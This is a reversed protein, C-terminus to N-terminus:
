LGARDLLSGIVKQAGFLEVAIDRAARCNGEYDAEIADVAEVVDDATTFAFLGEGTPLYRSFGTEQTIVPRGAALYCVSRDSFWGTRPRVYQDRAVTFEARSRWIFERYRDVSSSVAVADSVMWGHRRLSAIADRGVLRGAVNMCLEFPVPARGPLDMVKAFEVDKSWYYTEGNIVIDQDDNRWTTITRYRDGPRHDGRDWLSLAVPQRTPLWRFGDVPVMCDAAGINEGFSFLVNHAQLELCKLPDGLTARVQTGFPDTQVYIRRPCALHEDRLDLSGTINLYADATRYLELIRAESMGYCQGQPYDGRFAWRGAFGHAELIPAVRRINPLPDLRLQDTEPDYASGTADEVYYVDFGLERLGILYHLFQYTVGALPYWFAIGFVIIKGRHPATM